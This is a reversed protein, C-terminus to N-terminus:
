KLLIMKKSQIYNGAIIRYIYIGTAVKSGYNNDANWVVNYYGPSKEESVLTKVERGVIDYIKILVYSQQPISYNIITSPNFPNPYNQSVEFVAPIFSDNEVDTVTVPRVELDDWYITGTFRSYVHLRVSMAVAEPDDPVPVDISYGIWDFETVAPLVFQVDQPYGDISNWGDNNGVGKWFGYTFGVAWTEPWLAASDPVLDSAKLWVSVRMVVKTGGGRILGAGNLMMMRKTGVFADHPERTFPLDFKLSHTGSHAEDTTVTTNEFGNTIEGDNGGIPPLWYIWGTPVGVATNWDQGAWAGGRGYLMFDDAWVTGTADKGGIFKIITTWSDEPLITAGVGNTDAYFEGSSATNQDIDMVTEGILAGSSDYFTYSIKWKEDETQPDTNVGETRVWAGIKIDVDKYHQPSWFDAMNESEWVAAETTAGKTIKLSKGMSRSQDTAWELTSGSPETGKMWYSPMDGEFGGISSIQAAVNSAFALIFLLIPLTGWFSKQILVRIM